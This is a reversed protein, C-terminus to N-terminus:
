LEALEQDDNRHAPKDNKVTRTFHDTVLKSQNVTATRESNLEFENVNGSLDAKASDNVNVTTSYTDLNLNALANNYLNVDLGIEALKGFSTVVANDYASISRLDNATVWVVLKEAKYSSIRLVGNQSQVLANEAYYRNYVKVEDASGDSVYVQVNGHVEIKNISSVNTLTVSVENNITAAKSVNLSGLALAAIAVISLTIKKMTKNNQNDIIQVTIENFVVM